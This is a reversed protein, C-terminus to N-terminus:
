SALALSLAPAALRVVGLRERIARSERRRGPALPDAGDLETLVHLAAAVDYDVGLERARELSGTIAAVAAAQEGLQALACGRLRLLLPELRADLVRPALSELEQLAREAHGGFVLAEALLAQAMQAEPEHGLRRLKALARQISGRGDETRGQHVAARGLLALAYAVGSDYGSGGWVQMARRLAQDAATLRGQEVLVEGVNCDGFAANVADGAQASANGARRYLVVAEPWDGRHFAFAGLNNLVAAQRDLDDLREYIELARASYTAEDGRGADHLAWDLLHCAHAIAREEGAAEGEAIAQRCLEIADAFRGQRQRVLAVAALVRARCGAADDGLVAELTRLARLGARVAQRADGARDALETRRLLVEGVRVADGAVLRQARRYADQAADPRGSRSYADGLAQLADALELPGAGAGRASGIARALLQAADAHTGQDRAREGARIGYRWARAPDGAHAFHLSLLAAQEDARPGLERELRAGALAHLRRRTRFPLGAYAADRLVGIRFRYWGDGDDAFVERLREWTAPDPPPAGDLVDALMAPRFSMGLVAARRVLMRDHPELRDIRATAAAELTESLEHEGAAASALLDRLFQPNGASREAAGVLVAPPLPAAETVREALTLADAAALPEVHLVTRGPGPAAAFGRSVDRRTTLVLWPREPLAELLAALLAASAADMDHGHEVVLIAPERLSAALFRVVVDHLRDARFDPALRAVAPSDPTVIGFPAALLPLWPALEPDREAVAAELRALLADAPEEWPADVLEVLLERWPAYPTAGGRAECTALLVPMGPAEHRLADVLRTKGVGPAGSLEVYRGRGGRAAALADRLTDLEADRGVLVGDHGPAPATRAARDGVAWADVPRAKGKLELPPLATRSFVTASCDLVGATAYIEGAPAAGMLRAALNVVDGMVTYTRRYDPGIEGAFARGRHVGIKLPLAPRAAAIARLAGLMREEDGGLARPAGACLILKGGDVDVDSGLLAVEHDAAADQVVTLLADLDRAADAAGAAIRADTGGFRVFAVTVLRHEPAGGGGLVHARVEVPLGSALVEPPADIPPELPAADAGPPAASLLRGAGAPAGLARAPLQAAVAPSVVIQGPGAEREIRLVESVADGAFVPERHTRGALFLHITGTHIGLSMRLPTRAGAVPPGLGRLATRMGVAARCAREVHREGEFLLLLADGGFKLLGGGNAYAVGLLAAFSSGIADSIREAGEPGMRALRESLRTFGAVDAFVLTGPLEAVGDPPANALERVVVRPLYPTLESPSRVGLM